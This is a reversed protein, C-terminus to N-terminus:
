YILEEDLEIDKWFNKIYYRWEGTNYYIDQAVYSIIKSKYFEINEDYDGEAIVFEKSISSSKIGPNNYNHNLTLWPKLNKFMICPLFISLITYKKNDGYLNEENIRIQSNDEIFKIVSNFKEEDYKISKKNDHIIENCLEQTIKNIDNDM